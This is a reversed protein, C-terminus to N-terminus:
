DILKVCLVNLRNIRTKQNSRGTGEGWGRSGRGIVPAGLSGEPYDGGSVAILPAAVDFCNVSRRGSAM